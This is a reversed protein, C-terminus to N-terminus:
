LSREDMDMSLEKQKMTNMTLAVREFTDSDIKKISTLINPNKQLFGSMKNLDKIVTRDGEKQRHEIAHFAKIVKKASQEEVSLMSDKVKLVEHPNNKEFHQKFEKLTDNKKLLDNLAKKQNAFDDAINQENKSRNNEKIKDQPLYDVTVDKHRSRSLTAILERENAFHEKSYFLEAQKRHRSMGVHALHSNMYQSAFIYSRDITVGQGKHITAAYGHTLDTYQETNVKVLCEGDDLRICATKGEMKELIGLTGNKVGLSRDNKLFYVKDNICLELAGSPKQLVFAQGLEGQSKRFTRIDENFGRVDRRTDCLIIQTEHPREVRNDQWKEIVAERALASTEYCHILGADQYRALAKGTQRVAFEHVAERQWAIEQRRIETLEVYGIEEAIARFSAGAEIAQLQEPDGILVAKAGAQKVESLIRDMQRSGIMGAEDVVVIDRSTLQEYGKDWAHVHSAITRSEIGSSNTLNQAAIGSLTMGVVNFGAREWAERTAGLLYSKGTGAYGIVCNLGSPTLLHEFAKTQELSLGRKESMSASMAADVKHNGSEALGVANSMMRTELELQEKTSFREKGQEDLGLRVVSDHGKVAAYVKDFQEADKTHRNIFRALDHHTFTSQQKILADLAVRPNELIWLGNEYAINQHEELRILQDRAVTPGIKSQPALDIEQEEFNRHDIRLDLGEQALHHNALNAWEERWKLLHEKKNWDRVKKGFGDPTVERLTLMVHAHPQNQGDSAHGEHICIDAVMGEAVFTAQVYEKILAKNKELTLERPLSINLERSLQADKRKEAREVANWLKERKKMWEPANKPILIEAFLVDQKKTYDHVINQREDVLKEASRYAASSVASKGQSRSIIKSSLHYIAM